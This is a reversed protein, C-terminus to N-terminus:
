KQKGSQTCKRSDRRWKKVNHETKNHYGKIGDMGSNRSFLLARLWDCRRFTIGRAFVHQVSSYRLYQVQPLNEIIWRRIKQQPLLSLELTQHSAPVANWAM